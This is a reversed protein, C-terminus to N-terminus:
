CGGLTPMEPNNEPAKMVGVRKMWCVHRVTYAESGHKALEAGGGADTGKM